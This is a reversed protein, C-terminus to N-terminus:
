WGLRLTVWAQRLPLSNPRFEPHDGNVGQLTLAIEDNGGPKGLRKALRVDLRDYAPQSDGDGLWKMAGVHYYGLSANLGGSMAKSWLLSLSGSPASADIDVGTMPDPIGTSRIDTLAYSLLFRGWIAHRWDLSIEGGDVRIAGGNRFMFAYYAPLMAVYGQPPTVPCDPIDPFSGNMACGYNNLYSGYHETYVRGDIQLGLQAFRGIYGLEAFTVTEPDVPLPSIVGLRLPVGAVTYTELADSELLNPARYGRGVSARLSQAPSIAYNLALRPSVLVDTNGHGELMAGAHLLWDETWYWDLNGFVQWSDDSVTGKGYFYRKSSVQDHLLGVGWLGTLAESFVRNQQFELGDRGTKADLNLPVEIALQAVPVAFSEAQRHGYHYYRLTTEAGPAPMTHWALQVFQNQIGQDHYPYSDVLSSGVEDKGWSLGVNATLERDQGLRRTLTAAFTQRAVNRRYASDLTASNQFTKMFRDSASIRWDTSVGRRGLRAYLDRFDKRGVSAVVETGADESALRTIINIVGNYAGAGYSAENPGRVVEIREIDEVRVPLDLWDVSGKIPDNVSQGDILVLQNHPFASGMGHNTAVPSGGYYNAVQFGPVLRLLDQIAMFGSERITQRDIVTVPAPADLASQQIRSATLVMPQEALFLSESLSDALASQGFLLGVGSLAMWRGAKM